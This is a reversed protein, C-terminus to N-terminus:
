IVEGYREHGIYVIKEMLPNRLAPTMIRNRPDIQFRTILNFGQGLVNANQKCYSQMCNFILRKNTM